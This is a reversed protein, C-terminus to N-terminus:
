NPFCHGGKHKKGSVNEPMCSWCLQFRCGECPDSQAHRLARQRMLYISGTIVLLSITLVLFLYILM